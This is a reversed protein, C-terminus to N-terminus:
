ALLENLAEVVAVLVEAELEMWPDNAAVLHHIGEKADRVPGM